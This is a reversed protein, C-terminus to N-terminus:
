DLIYMYMHIYIYTNIYIYIDICIIYSYTVKRVFFAELSERCIHGFNVDVTKGISPSIRLVEHSLNVILLKRSPGASCVNLQKSTFYTDYLTVTNPSLSPVPHVPHM